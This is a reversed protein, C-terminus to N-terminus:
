LNLHPAIHKDIFAKRKPCPNGAVGRLKLEPPFSKWEASGNLLLTPNLLFLAASDALDESVSKRGYNTPPAESGALISRYAVYKKGNVTRELKAEDNRTDHNLWYGGTAKMFDEELYRLLGHALEHAMVGRAGSSSKTHNSNFENEYGPTNLNGFLRVDYGGDHLGGANDKVIM